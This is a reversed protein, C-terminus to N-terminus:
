NVGNPTEIVDLAHKELARDRVMSVARSLCFELVLTDVFEGRLTVDFRLRNQLDVATQAIDQQCGRLCGEIAAISDEM